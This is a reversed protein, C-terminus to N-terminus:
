REILDGNVYFWRRDERVFSSLEHLRVASGGGVKYRAVFEVEAHDPAAERSSKVSLGLWKTQPEFEVTTPRTSTHWSDLLYPENCQVYAVYRSRMLVEATPAIDGAHWRGCCAEYTADLGCPCATM